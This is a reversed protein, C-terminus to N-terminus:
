MAKRADYSAKLLTIIDARRFSTLSESTKRRPFNRPGGVAQSQSAPNLRRQSIRSGRLTGLPLSDAGSKRHDIQGSHFASKSIGARCNPGGRATNASQRAM